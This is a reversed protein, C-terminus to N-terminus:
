KGETCIEALARHKTKTENKSRSSALNEPARTQRGSIGSSTCEEEVAWNAYKGAGEPVSDQRPHVLPGAATLASRKLARKAYFCHPLPTHPSLTSHPSKCTGLKGPATNLPWLACPTPAARHVGGGGM